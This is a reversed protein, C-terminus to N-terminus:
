IIDNLVINNDNFKKEKKEEVKKEINNIDKEKVKKEEKENLNNYISINKKLSDDVNICNNISDEIGNISSAMIQQNLTKLNSNEIIEFDVKNEENTNSEEKNFKIISNLSSM